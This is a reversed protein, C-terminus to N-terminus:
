PTLRRLTQRAIYHLGAGSLIWITASAVFRWGATAPDYGGVGYLAAAAPVIVGAVVSASAMTNLWNATLKVQENHTLSM